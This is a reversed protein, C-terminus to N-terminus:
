FSGFEPGHIFENLYGMIIKYEKVRTDRLYPVSIGRHKRVRELEAKYLNDTEYNKPRLGLHVVVESIIKRSDIPIVNINRHYSVGKIIEVLNKLSPRGWFNEVFYDASPVNSDKIKKECAKISKLDLKMKHLQEGRFINKGVTGPRALQYMKSKDLPHEPNNISLSYFLPNRLPIQKNKKASYESVVKLMAQLGLPTYTLIGHHDSFHEIDLGADEFVSIQANLEDTIDKEKVKGSLQNAKRTFKGSKKPSLSKAGACVRDGSTITFHIGMAIKPYKKKLEKAKEVSFRGNKDKGNSFSAVSQILGKEVAKIIANDILPTVGFDDATFVIKRTEM